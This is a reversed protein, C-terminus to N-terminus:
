ESELQSYWDKPKPQVFILELSSRGIYVRRPEGPRSSRNSSEVTKAFELQSIKDGLISKKEKITELKAAVLQKYIEPYKREFIRALKCITKESLETDSNNDRGCYLGFFIDFM